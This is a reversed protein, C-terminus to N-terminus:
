LLVIGFRKMVLAFLGFCFVTIMVSAVMAPWFGFRELLFPFAGFMPLTPIVYWLTYWAHNAVKSEPQKEVHLWILTLLTVVPLAAVFGGLRDSRKAVESVLVVVGATILYKTIIWLMYQINTFVQALKGFGPDFLRLFALAHV